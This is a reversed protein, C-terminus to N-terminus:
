PSFFSHFGRVQFYFSICIFVLFFSPKESDFQKLIKSLQQLFIHDPVFIVFFFCLNQYSFTLALHQERQLIPLHLCFLLFFTLHTFTFTFLSSSANEELCLISSAYSNEIKLIISAKSKCIIGVNLLSYNNRPSPSKSLDSM